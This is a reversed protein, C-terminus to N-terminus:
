VIDDASRTAAAKQVEYHRWWIVGREKRFDTRFGRYHTVPKVIGQNAITQPLFSAAWGTEEKVMGLGSHSSGLYPSTGFRPFRRGKGGTPKQASRCGIRATSRWRVAGGHFGASWPKDM